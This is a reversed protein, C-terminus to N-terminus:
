NEGGENAVPSPIKTIESVSEFFIYPECNRLSNRVMKGGKTLGKM